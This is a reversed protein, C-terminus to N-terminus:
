QVIYLTNPDKTAIADYQAQTGTWIQSISTSSVMNETSLVGSSDVTLGSGVMVGGLTATSATPLTYNSITNQRTFRNNTIGSYSGDKNISVNYTYLKNNYVDNVLKTGAFNARTSTLSRLFLSVFDSSDYSSYAGLIVDYGANHAAEIETFLGAVNSSYDPFYFYKVNGSQIGVTYASLTELDVAIGSTTGSLTGLDAGIQATAGSLDGVQSGIQETVASLEATVATTTYGSLRSYDVEGTDGKEGQPGQPGVPGQPGTAGSLTETYASLMQLGESLGSFGEALLTDERITSASLDSLNAELQVTSASLDRVDISGGSITATYASLEQLDVAIGSTAGSLDTIKGDLSDTIGSLAGIKVRNSETKASLEAIEEDYDTGGSGGKIVLNGGETIASGNITAFNKTLTYQKITNEFEKDTVLTTIDGYGAPLYSGIPTGDSAYYIACNYDNLVTITVRTYAGAVRDQMKESNTFLQISPNSVEVAWEFDRIQRLFNILTEAGMSFIQTENAADELLRDIYYFTFGFDTTNRGVNITETPSLFMVPYNEIQQPNLAYISPGAASYNVLNRKLAFECLINTLLELTM